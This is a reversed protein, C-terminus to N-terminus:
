FCFLVFCIVWAWEKSLMLRTLNAWRPVPTIPHSGGAGVALDTLHTCLMWHSLIPQLYYSKHWISPQPFHTHHGIKETLTASLTCMLVQSVPLGCSQWIRKAWTQWGNGTATACPHENVTAENNGWLLTHAQCVGEKSVFVVEDQCPPAKIHTHGECVSLFVKCSPFFSDYIPGNSCRCM